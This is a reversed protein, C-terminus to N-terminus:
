KPATDCEDRLTAHFEVPIPGKPYVFAFNTFESVRGCAFSIEVDRESRWKVSLQSFDYGHLFCQVQKTPFDADSINAMCVDTNRIGSHHFEQSRVLVKFPGNDDEAVSQEPKGKCSSLVTITLCCIAWIRM